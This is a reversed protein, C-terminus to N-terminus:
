GEKIETITNLTRRLNLEMDHLKARMDNTVLRSQRDMKEEFSNCQEVTDTIHKELDDLLRNRNDDNPREAKLDGIFKELQQDDDFNYAGIIM